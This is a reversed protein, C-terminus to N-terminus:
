SFARFIQEVVGRHGEPFVEFLQSNPHPSRDDAQREDGADRHIEAILDHRDHALRDFVGESRPLNQRAFVRLWEIGALGPVVEPVPNASSGDCSWFRRRFHDGVQLRHGHLDLGVIQQGGQVFGRGSRKGAGSGFGTGAAVDAGDAVFSM